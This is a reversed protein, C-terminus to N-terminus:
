PKVGIKIGIKVGPKAGVKAHAAEQPSPRGKDDLPANPLKAAGGRDWAQTDFGILDKGSLRAALSKQTGTM